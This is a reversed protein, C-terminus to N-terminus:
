HFINVNKQRKHNEYLFWRANVNLNFQKQPSIMPYTSKTNGKFTVSSLWLHIIEIKLLKDLKFFVLIVKSCAWDSLITLVCMLVRWFRKCIITITSCWLLWSLHLGKHPTLCYTILEDRSKRSLHKCKIFLNQNLIILLIQLLFLCFTEYINM